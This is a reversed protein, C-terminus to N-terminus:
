AGAIATLELKEATEYIVDEAAVTVTQGMELSERPLLVLVADAKRAQVYVLLYGDTSQNESLEGGFLM